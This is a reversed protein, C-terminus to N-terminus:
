AEDDEGSPATEPALLPTVNRFMGRPQTITMSQQVEYLGRGPHRGGARLNAMNIIDAVSSAWRERVSCPLCSMSYHTPNNLVGDACRQPIYPPLDVILAILDAQSHISPTGQCVIVGSSTSVELDRWCLLCRFESGHMEHVYDLLKQSQEPTMEQTNM